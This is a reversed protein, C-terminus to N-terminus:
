RADCGCVTREIEIEVAEYIRGKDDKAAISDVVTVGKHADKWNASAKERPAEGAIMKGFTAAFRKRYSYQVVGFAAKAFRGGRGPADPCGSVEVEFEVDQKLGAALSAVDRTGPKVGKFTASAKCDDSFATGAACVLLVAPIAWARTTM